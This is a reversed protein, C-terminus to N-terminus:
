HNEAEIDRGYEVLLRIVQNIENKTPCPRLSPYRSFVGVTTVALHLPTSGSRDRHHVDAGHELLLRTMNPCGAAAALSLPSKKQTNELNVNAGLHLLTEVMVSRRKPYNHSMIAMFLPTEQNNSELNVDCGQDCLWKVLDISMCDAQHHLASWGKHDQIKIDAGHQLLTEVRGFKAAPDSEQRVRLFPTCGKSDVADVDAGHQILLAIAESAYSEPTSAAYHLATYGSDPGDPSRLNIDAGYRLLAMMRDGLLYFAAIHLPSMNDRNFCDVQAGAGIIIEFLEKPMYKESAIHLPMRGEPERANIDAGKNLLFSIYPLAKRYIANILPTRGRRGPLGVDAKYELLLNQMAFKSRLLSACELPLPLFDTRFNPNAGHELLIKATGLRHKKVACMLATHYPAEVTRTDVKVGVSLMTRVGLEYEHEVYSIFHDNIFKLSRKCLSAFLLDHLARNTRIFRNLDPTCLRSAIEFLIERPLDLLGTTM